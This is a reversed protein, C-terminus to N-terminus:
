ALREKRASVLHQIVLKWLDDYPIVEADDTIVNDADAYKIKIAAGRRGAEEPDFDAAVITSLMRMFRATRPTRKNSTYRTAYKRLEGARDIVHAFDRRRLSQIVDLIVLASNTLVKNKKLLKDDVKMTARNGLSRISKWYDSNNVFDLTVLEAMYMNYLMWYQKRWEPLDGPCAELGRRIVTAAMEYERLALLASCYTQLENNSDASSPDLTELLSVWSDVHNSSRLLQAQASHLNSRFGSEMYQTQYDPNNNFWALAENCTDITLQYSCTANYYRTKMLWLATRTLFTDVEDHILAARHLLSQMEAEIGEINQHYQHLLHTLTQSLRNMESEYMVITELRHIRAACDDFDTRNEFAIYRLRWEEVILSPLFLDFRVAIEGTADLVDVVSNNVSHASLILASTIQRHARIRARVRASAPVQELDILSLARHLMDVCRQKGKGISTPSTSLRMNKLVDPWTADDDLAILTDVLNPLISQSKRFLHPIRHRRLLQAFARATSLEM